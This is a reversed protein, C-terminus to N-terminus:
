VVFVNNLKPQIQTNNQTNIRKYNRYMLLLFKTLYDYITLVSLGLWLSALSAVYCIFEIFPMQPSHNYTVDGSFRRILNIDSFLMKRLKLAPEGYNIAGRQAPSSASTHSTEEVDFDYEEDVCDPLCQDYCANRMEGAISNNVSEDRGCMYDKMHHVDRRVSIHNPTCNCLHSWVSVICKDVCDARSQPKNPDNTQYITCMTEYPPPLLKSLTKSFYIDYNFGPRLKHVKGNNPLMNPPHISISAPAIDLYNPYEELPFKIQISAISGLSARLDQYLSVKYLRPDVLNQNLRSFYTFCKGNSHFTEIVKSVSQCNFGRESSVLLPLSLNCSIFHSEKPSMAFLSEIPFQKLALESYKEYIKSENLEITKNDTDKTAGIAELEKAMQQGFTAKLVSRTFFMSVCITMSPLDIVMEKELKVNVVTPYKYYLTALESTEYVLAVSSFAVVLFKVAFNLKVFARM